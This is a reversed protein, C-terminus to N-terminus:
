ENVVLTGTMNFHYDEPADAVCFSTCRFVFTGAKDAEFEVTQTTGKVLFVNINYGEIGFGHGNIYKVPWSYLPVLLTNTSLAANAIEFSSVTITILLAVALFLALASKPASGLNRYFVM